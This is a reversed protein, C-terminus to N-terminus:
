EFVAALDEPAVGEVEHRLTYYGVTVMVSTLATAMGSLFVSLPLGVLFGLLPDQEPGAAFVGYMIMQELGTLAGTLLGLLITLFFIRWRYGETLKM